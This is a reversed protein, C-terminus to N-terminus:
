YHLQNIFAIIDGKRTSPLEIVEPKDSVIEGYEQSWDKKIFAQAEQKNAFLKYTCNDENDIYSVQYLKM